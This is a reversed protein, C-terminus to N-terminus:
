MNYQTINELQKEAMRKIVGKGEDGNLISIFVLKKWECFNVLKTNLWGNKTRKLLGYKEIDKM